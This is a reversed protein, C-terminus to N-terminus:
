EEFFPWLFLNQNYYKLKTLKKELVWYSHTRMVFWYTVNILFINSTARGKFKYTEGLENQPLHSSRRTKWTM